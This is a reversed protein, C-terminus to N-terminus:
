EGRGGSAVQTLSRWLYDAELPSLDYRLSAEDLLNILRLSPEERRRQDIWLLAQRMSEGQPALKEAM